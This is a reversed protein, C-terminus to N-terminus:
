DLSDILQEMDSVRRTAANKDDAEAKELQKRTFDMAPKLDAKTVESGVYAEEALVSVGDSLIDAFGGTIVFDSEGDPGKLKIKGPMLTTLVASHNPMVTMTGKAAPIQASSVQVSALSGEPSVLDFQMTDAM